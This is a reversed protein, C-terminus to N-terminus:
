DPVQDESSILERGFTVRRAGKRDTTSFGCDIWACGTKYYQLCINVRFLLAYNIIVFRQPHLLLNKVCSNLGLKM